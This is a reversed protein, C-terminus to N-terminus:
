LDDHRVAALVGHVVRELHEAVLAVFDKNGAGYQVDYGSSIASPPPTGITNGVVSADPKRTVTSCSSAATVGRVFAISKTEGLLGVPATYGGSSTSAIPRQASSRPM